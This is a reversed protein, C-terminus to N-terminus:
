LPVVLSELALTKRKPRVGPPLNPAVHKAFFADSEQKSQWIEVVRVGGDERQHATHMIFGPAAKMAEQLAGIMQAYIQPTTGEADGIMMIPM